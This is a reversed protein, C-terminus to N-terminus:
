ETESLTAIMNEAVSIYSTGDPVFLRLFSNRLPVLYVRDNQEILESYYIIKKVIRSGFVVDETSVADVYDPMASEAVGDERFIMIPFSPEPPLTEPLEQDSFALTVVGEGEITERYERYQWDAPYQFSVGWEDNRYTQWGVTTDSADPPANSIGAGGGCSWGVLVLLFLAVAGLGAFTKTKM